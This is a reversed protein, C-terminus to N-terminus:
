RHFRLRLKFYIEIWPKLFPGLIALAAISPAFYLRARRRDTAKVIKRAVDAPKRPRIHGMLLEAEKPRHSAEWALQPTETDAPFCIGISVDSFAAELRLADVFGVLASKSACYSTYAPIGLFAATSSLIMIRGTGRARMGTYVHRVTNAVGLFNTQWQADFAAQPQEHFWGPHVTGTSVVLVDCPGFEAECADIAAAVADGSAVDASATFIRAESGVSLRIDAKASNLRGEDRGIVSVSAGRGAYIRAVELGIGSSGGTVVVHM